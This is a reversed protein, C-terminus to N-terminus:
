AGLDVSLDRLVQECYERSVLGRDIAEQVGGSLQMAAGIETRLADEWGLSGAFQRCEANFEVFRDSVTDFIANGGDPQAVNLRAM